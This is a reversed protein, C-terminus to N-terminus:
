RERGRTGVRLGIETVRAARETEVPFHSLRWTILMWRNVCPHTSSSSSALNSVNKQKSCFRFLAFCRPGSTHFDNRRQFRSFRRHFLFEFGFHFLKLLYTQFFSSQTPLKRWFIGETRTFRRGSDSSPDAGWEGQWLIKEIFGLRWLYAAAEKWTDVM